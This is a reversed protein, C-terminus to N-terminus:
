NTLFKGGSSAIIDSLYVNPSMDLSKIYLKINNRKLMSKLRELSIRMQPDQLDCFWYIADVGSNSLEEFANMSRSGEILSCGVVNLIKANKFNSMIEDKLVSIYPKMSPSVDLIVGLKTANITDGMIRGSTGRGSGKGDGIGFGRGNGNGGNKFLSSNNKTYSVKPVFSNVPISTQLVPENMSVTPLDDIQSTTNDGQSGGELNDGNELPPASESIEVQLKEEYSPALQVVWNQEQKNNKSKISGLIIIGIIHISVSILLVKGLSNLRKSLNLSGIFNIFAEIKNLIQVFINPKPSNITPSKDFFSEEIVKYAYISLLLLIIYIM